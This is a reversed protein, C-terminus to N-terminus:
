EDGVQNVHYSVRSWLEIRHNLRKIKERMQASFFSFIMTGSLLLALIAFVLYLYQNESNSQLVIQFVYAALIAFIIAFIAAFIKRM